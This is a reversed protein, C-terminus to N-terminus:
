ILLYAWSKQTVLLALQLARQLSTTNTSRHMNEIVVKHNFRKSLLNPNRPKLGEKSQLATLGHELCSEYHASYEGNIKKHMWIMHLWSHLIGATPM